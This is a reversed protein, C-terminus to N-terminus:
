AGGQAPDDAWWASGGKLVAPTRVMAAGHAGRFFLHYEPAIDPPFQFLKQLTEGFGNCIYITTMILHALVPRLSVLRESYAYKPEDLPLSSLHPESRNVAFGRPTAFVVPADHGGHVM